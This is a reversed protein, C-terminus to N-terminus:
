DAMGRVLQCAYFREARELTRPFISAIAFVLSRGSAPGFRRPLALSRASLVRVVEEVLIRLFHRVLLLFLAARFLHSAPSITRLAADVPFVRAGSTALLFVAFAKLPVLTTSGNGLWQLVALTGSFFLAPVLRLFAQRISNSVLTHAMLGLLFLGTVWAFSNAAASIGAAALIGISLGVRLGMKM